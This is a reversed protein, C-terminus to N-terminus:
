RPSCQITHMKVYSRTENGYAPQLNAILKFPFLILENTGIRCINLRTLLITHATGSCISVHIICGIYHSRIKEFAELFSFNSQIFAEAM